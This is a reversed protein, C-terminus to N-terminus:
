TYCLSAELSGQSWKFNIFQKSYIKKLMKLPILDNVNRFQLSLKLILLFFFLKLFNKGYNLGRQIFNCNLSKIIIHYERGSRTENVDNLLVKMNFELARAIINNGNLINNCKKKLIFRFEHYNNKDDRFSGYQLCTEMIKVLGSLVTTRIYISVLTEVAEVESLTIYVQLDNYSKM